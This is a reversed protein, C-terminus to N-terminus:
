QQIQTLEDLSLGTMKKVIENDYGSDLMSQAIKLAAEKEGEQRGKELGKELGEQRGKELGRQELQQAITMLVDEHQPSQEALERIFGDPDATNGVQILYNLATRLQEDTYYDLSLLYVLEGLLEAMDRQRAHKLIIELLAIRKHTLIETDPLVTLDVLPFKGAYLDKAREPLVFSDLWSLSFPYPQIQGHYFLIPIVLPLTDHGQDIHQQMASISYRMLRFAMLKDPTSQHEILCYVYGAGQTTKVSYLMDSVHARMNPEIFSSSELKLSNLDCMELLSHPLHIQLFDRATEAHSLFQKFLSDHPTPTKRKM